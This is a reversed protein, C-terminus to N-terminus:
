IQSDEICFGKKGKPIEITFPETEYQSGDVICRLKATRKGRPTDLPIDFLLVREETTYFGQSEWDSPYLQGGMCLMVSEVQIRRLTLIVTVSGELLLLTGDKENDWYNMKGGASDKM